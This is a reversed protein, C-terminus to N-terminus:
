QRREPERAVVIPPAPPQLRSAIIAVHSVLTDVRAREKSVAGLALLAALGAAVAFLFAAAALGIAVGVFM